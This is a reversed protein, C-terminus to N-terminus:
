GAYIPRPKDVPGLFVFLNTYVLSFQQMNYHDVIM